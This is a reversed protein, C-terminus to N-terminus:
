EAVLGVHALNSFFVLTGFKYQDAQAPRQSGVGVPHTRQASSILARRSFISWVFGSVISPRRVPREL